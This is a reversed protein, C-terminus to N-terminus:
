KRPHAPRGADGKTAAYYVDKWQARVAAIEHCPANRSRLADLQDQLARLRILDSLM